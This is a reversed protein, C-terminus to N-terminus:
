ARGVEQPLPSWKPEKADRVVASCAQQYRLGLEPIPTTRACWEHAALQIGGTIPSEVTVWSLCPRGCLFCDVSEHDAALRHDGLVARLSVTQENM